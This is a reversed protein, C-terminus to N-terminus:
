GISMPRLHGDGVEVLFAVDETWERIDIGNDLARSYPCNRLDSENKLCPTPHLLYVKKDESRAKAWHGIYDRRKGVIEEIEEPDVLETM